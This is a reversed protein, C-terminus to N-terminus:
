IFGQGDQAFCKGVSNPLGDAVNLNRFYQAFAMLPMTLLFVFILLFRLIKRSMRNIM